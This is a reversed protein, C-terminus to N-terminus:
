SRKVPWQFNSAHMSQSYFELAEVGKVVKELSFGLTEYAERIDGKKYLTLARLDEDTMENIAFRNLLGDMKQFYALAYERLARKPNTQALEEVKQRTVQLTTQRAVALQHVKMYDNSNQFQYKVPWQFLQLTFSQDIWLGSELINRQTEQLNFGLKAYAQAFQGTKYLELAQREQNSLEGAHYHNILNNKASLLRYTYQAAESPNQALATLIRERVQQPNEYRSYYENRPASANVSAANQAFSFTGCTLVLALTSAITKKM